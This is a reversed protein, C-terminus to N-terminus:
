TWLCTSSPRPSTSTRRTCPTAPSRPQTSLWCWCLTTRSAALASTTAWSSVTGQTTSTIVLLLLPPKQLWSRLPMAALMIARRRLCSM